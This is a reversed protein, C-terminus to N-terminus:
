PVGGRRNEERKELRRERRERPTLRPSPLPANPDRPRTLRELLAAAGRTLGKGLVEQGTSKMGLNFAEKDVVPNEITGRIPVRIKVGGAVDQLLPRDSLGPPLVPVTAVLNLNRDFDVWGELGITTLKGIPLELGTQYVRRDAISLEVPANLRLGPRDTRGILGLLPDLFPGPTFKVDQFVVGGEVKLGDGGGLPISAEDISASVRGNVRTARDLVPAVFSLVRRSVEDNISLDKLTSEPGFTM